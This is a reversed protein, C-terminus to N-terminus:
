RMEEDPLLGYLTPQKLTQGSLGLIGQAPNIIAKNAANRISTSYTSPTSYKAINGGLKSIEGMLRPSQFPAALLNKVPIGGGTFVDALALSANAGGVLQQIGKPFYPRLAQGSLEPFLTPDLEAIKKALNFREGFNTNVSDRMISQLKRFQTDLPKKEKLSFTDEIERILNKGQEYNSMMDDYIPANKRITEGISGYVEQVVRRENTFPATSDYLDGIKQKLADIGEPTHYKKPDLKKWKNVMDTIEKQIKVTSSKVVEGKFMGSSKIKALAEDIEKFNLVSKDKTLKGKNAQYETSVLERIKRLANQAKTVTQRGSTGDAKIADNFAKIQAKTGEKAVNYAERLPRGGAGTTLGFFESFLGKESKLPKVKPPKTKLIQKLIIPMTKGIPSLGTAGEIKSYDIFDAVDGMYEQGATTKPQYATKEIIKPFVKEFSEVPQGTLVDKGSELGYLLPSGIAGLVGSGLTLGTEAVGKTKDFFTRNEKEQAQAKKNSLFAKYEPFSPPNSDPIQFIKNNIIEKEYRRYDPDRRQLALQKEEVSIGKPFAVLEGFGDDVYDYLEPQLKIAM